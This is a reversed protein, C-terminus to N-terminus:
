AQGAPGGEWEDTLAHGCPDAVNSAYGLKVDAEGGEQLEVGLNVGGDVRNGPDRGPFGFRTEPYGGRARKGEGEAAKANRAKGTESAFSRAEERPVVAVLKELLVMGRKETASTM